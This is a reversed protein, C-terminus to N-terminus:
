SHADETHGNVAVWTWTRWTTRDAPLAPTSARTRATKRTSTIECSTRATRWGELTREQLCVELREETPLTCTIWAAGQVRAGTVAPARVSLWCDQPVVRGTAPASAALAASILAAAAAAAATLHRKPMPFRWNRHTSAPDNARRGGALAGVDNSLRAARYLPYGVRWRAGQEEDEGTTGAPRLHSRRNRQKNSPDAMSLCAGANKDDSHTM